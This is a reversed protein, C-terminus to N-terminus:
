LLCGVVKLTRKVYGQLEAGDVIENAANPNDGHHYRRSYTNLEDLDEFIEALPHSVGADRISGVMSGLKEQEGFQLPYLNRCYSELIPRIKQVVSRHDGENLLMFKQLTDLDAHYRALVAQEIDWEAITTNEVGIRAMCLSKREGPAIRGWLLHLFNPDHSLVFVQACSEGCRYIQHVTHNRRFSDMSGFPDDFVVVKGSRNSDQELQAFFFALALTTRDGSSLTNKFSPKDTSTRSDGIEVTTGNIVIQYSTSPSGGRYNYTPTTITFSANIRELYRKIQQGYKNIVQQTHADLQERVTAKDSELTAKENQLRKATTCIERVEVTHRDKQAKLSALATELERENAIRAQGKRQAITTNATVIMENYVGLSTRLAEFAELSRTFVEDPAVPELPIGAKIALLSNAAARLAGIIDGILESEPLAPVNMECYQQWSEASVANQMLTQKLDAAMREGVATDVQTKFQNVENRLARYERNFFSSYSQVLSINTIDQDCFPCKDDVVFGLGESIWSEGSGEMHHRAVHEGVRREANKEVDEFTKGLLEEFDGPFLPVTLVTLAAKQQLQVAQRATQLDQKKAAIKTDIDVDEQLAIFSEVSTGQVVYPEIRIRNERIARNQDRIQKELEDLRSALAVGQAGIIVRYLSRRQETDVADGAYVNESIYTADFVVIDPYTASWTGNKFIVNGISTM